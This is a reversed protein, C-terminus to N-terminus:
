VEGVLVYRIGAGSVEAGSSIRGGFSDSYEVHNISAPLIIKKNLSYIEAEEKLLDKLAAIYDSNRSGIAVPKEIEQSMACAKKLLSIMVAKAYDKSLVTSYPSEVFLMPMEKKAPVLRVISRGVINLNNDQVQILKKNPDAM